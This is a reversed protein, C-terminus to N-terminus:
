ADKRFYLVLSKGLVPNLLRETSRTLCPKKMMDWTLFRQYAKVPAADENDPGALCKIWWYPSHLGHAWHRGTLSLGLSEFLRIIRKKTYIRVHGGETNAYSNSFAWCIREPFYRPVSVALNGGPKIVRYLERAARFEDHIHEMVESCIVHDFRNDAFPLDLISAAYLGWIGAFPSSYLEHLRIKERAALLDNVNIDAGAAKIQPYQCAACIHRGTGCGMDLINDGPRINLRGYDITIM